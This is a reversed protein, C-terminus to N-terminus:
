RNLYKKKKEAFYEDSVVLKRQKSSYKYNYLQSGEIVNVNTVEGHKYSTCTVSYIHDSLTGNNLGNTKYNSSAM